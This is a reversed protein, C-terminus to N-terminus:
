KPTRYKEIKVDVTGEGLKYVEKKSKKLIFYYSPKVEVQIIEGHYLATENSSISFQLNGDRIFAAYDITMNYPHKVKKDARYLTITFM